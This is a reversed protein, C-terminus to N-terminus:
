DGYDVAYGEVVVGERGGVDLFCLEDGVADAGQEAFRELEDVELVRRLLVVAGVASDVHTQEHLVQEHRPQQLGVCLILDAHAHTSFLDIRVVSSLLHQADDLSPAFLALPSSASALRAITVAMGLALARRANTVLLFIVLTHFTKVM